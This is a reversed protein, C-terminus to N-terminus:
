FGYDRYEETADAASWEEPPQVSVVETGQLAGHGETVALVAHDPGIPVESVVLIEERVTVLRYVRYVFKM